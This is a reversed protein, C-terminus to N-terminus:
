CVGLVRMGGANEVKLLEGNVNRYFDVGVASVVAVEEPLAKGDVLRLRLAIPAITRQKLAIAGSEMLASDGSHKPELPVYKKTNINFHYNTVTVACFIFKFHTAGEPATIQKKRNLSPSTWYVENRGKNLTPEERIGGISYVLPRTKFFEFGKLSEGNKRLDLKRSGRVGEGLAVVKQMRGSLRGSFYHDELGRKKSNLVRRFAKAAMSAGGYEVSSELTAKTLKIPGEPKSRAIPGNEDTTFIMGGMSGNLKLDTDIIRAMDFMKLSRSFGFRFSGLVRNFLLYYYPLLLWAVVQM